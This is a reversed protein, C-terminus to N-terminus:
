SIEMTLQETVANFFPELRKFLKFRKFLEKFFLCHLDFKFICRSVKLAAESRSLYNGILPM